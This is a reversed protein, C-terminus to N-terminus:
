TRMLSTPDIPLKTIRVGLHRVADAVANAIAAPAGITGGEGMGKVGGPMLPSPTELHEIEFRPTDHARPLAYDMLTGTLLQGDDDYVIRELLAEGIGQAVAGHIQGEVIMPNIVTGCDEVLAYRTIAVRGTERDVEVVAVHVAGSFTPGPPDFYVTADLGPAQGDPLGGLPPAYAIRTIEALPIARDPLGRVWARGGELVIDAASAELRHAALTRIRTAIVDAAAGASGLMAVTGRSGFTGSGRPSRSTDAPEVRVRELDLGLRDAVVQAITTAHGQGQSPFSVSCRVTADPDVRITAAEFGPVDHMGRRRFVASGMGTYETYCAVGVGILRGEARASRQAARLADYDVLALAQELAKPYDGSDYMQGSSSTFPYAERPILNRRRVEAPDLAAREAVLDLLREMVFAGMTMGVGRYAGLPPKHTAVAVAEYEYAPTRYPGPLINATGLPELAGTTPYAHYAGNDSVVRARLGLVTGDAAAAIEVSTRQARAQSAAALNERREEIWRVPRGLRRALAAVAVDEPFIQMKLGFGGGVDPTVIRVRSEPLDLAAALATRMISPAQSASWLTLSEGDWDAVMGRPELPSPACRGHEFTEAVVIAASAFAGAVDGHRHRREFLIRHQALAADLTAVVPLVEWDIALLERADAAVYPSTAVVAAVAEGCFRAVGDSLAWAATPTFGGGELRPVLPKTVMRLEDGTVVDVVGALARVAVTDIRAVRAHAHPSRVFAVSLARPLELDALYRGGGRLLRPDEVRKVRAGTYRLTM